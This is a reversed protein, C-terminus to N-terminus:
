GGHAGSDMTTVITDAAARSSFPSPSGKQRCRRKVTPSNEAALAALAGFVEIEDVQQETNQEEMNEVNVVSRAKRKRSSPEPVHSLLVAHHHPRENSLTDATAIEVQPQRPSCPAPVLALTLVETDTSTTPPERKIQALDVHKGIERM